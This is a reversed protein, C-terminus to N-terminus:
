ELEFVADHYHLKDTLLPVKLYTQALLEFAVTAVRM